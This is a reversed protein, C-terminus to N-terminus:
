FKDLQAQLDPSSQEKPPNGSTYLASLGLVGKALWELVPEGHVRTRNSACSSVVLGADNEHPTIPTLAPQITVM